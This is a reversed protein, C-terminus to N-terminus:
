AARRRMVIFGDGDIETRWGPPVVLTADVSEVIAPGNLV